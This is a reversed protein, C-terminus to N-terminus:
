NRGGCHCPLKADAYCSSLNNRFHAHIMKILQFLYERFVDSVSRPIIETSVQVSQPFRRFFFAREPYGINRGFGHPMLILLSTLHLASFYQTFGVMVHNRDVTFM